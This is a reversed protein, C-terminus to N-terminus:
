NAMIFDPRRIFGSNYKFRINSNLEIKWVNMNGNTRPFYHAKLEVTGFVLNENRTRLGGGISSFLDSKVLSQRTPKLLSADAFAFPAFRFGLVKRTNYFVTEMKGTIRLNAEIYENNMYPLGYSSNLFLPTNLKPNAQGTFSASYFFRHYWSAGLKKLRTFQEMNFLLDIDEFRHRYYYSGARFTYNFYANNRRLGTFQLDAGAYPRKISEKNIYGATLALNFGSPIDENRGFGYIFNTKYFQQRFLTYSALVGTFDAYLYNLKNKFIYPITLYRQTFARVAVFRHRGIERNAYLGRKSDLSYGVWGDLKYYAYKYDNSYLSDSVYANITKSYNWELSGTLPKYPTVMPKELRTYFSMEENRGSNFANRFNSYGITYDIFSGKINRKVWEAGYGNVPSRGTEYYGSVQIRNGTGLFNEERIEARGKRTSSLDIKGGISFVDRTLVVVDVSDTSSEAFDVLIRADQIFVLERLYRENDALLYPYLKDGERFFLNNTILRDTSRRHFRNAMRTGFTSQVDCTDNINCGFELQALIVSRIIKGKYRQFHNVLKVPPDEPPNNRSISKGFRGLLGKKKALFFTDSRNGGQQASLTLPAIALLVPVILIAFPYSIKRYGPM